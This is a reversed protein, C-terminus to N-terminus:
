RRVVFSVHVPVTSSGKLRLIYFGPALSGLPLPLTQRGAELRMQKRLAGCERGMADFITISYTDCLLIDLEMTSSATAPAPYIKMGYMANRVNTAGIGTLGPLITKATLRRLFVGNTDIEWTTYSSDLHCVFSILLTSDSSWSPYYPIRFPQGGLLEKLRHTAFDYMCLGTRRPETIPGVYSADAAFFRRNPSFAIQAFTLISYWEPTWVTDSKGSRIDYVCYLNPNYTPHECFVTDLTWPLCGYPYAGVFEVNRGDQDCRYLANPTSCYVHAGDASWEPRFM